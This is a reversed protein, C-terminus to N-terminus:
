IYHIKYKELQREIRAKANDYYEKPPIERHHYSESVYHYMLQIMGSLPTVTGTELEIQIPEGHKKLTDGPVNVFHVEAPKKLSHLYYETDAVTQSYTTDNEGIYKIHTISKLPYIPIQYCSQWSEPYAQITAGQMLRGTVREFHEQVGAMLANIVSDQLANAVRLYTKMDALSIPANGSRTTIKYPTM